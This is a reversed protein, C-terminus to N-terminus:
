NVAGPTLLSIPYAASCNWFQDFATSVDRVIPGAALVDFDAMEADPRAQFYEDAVNRGGVVAAQNDVTFSKNHMRRTTRSFDLMVGLVPTGRLAIPNFMRVEINPHSDLVLLMRDKAHVGYDDLLIRVRVGRDAAALLHAALLKGSSDPEWIYY